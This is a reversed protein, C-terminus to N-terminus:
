VASECWSVWESLYSAFGEVKELPNRQLLPDNLAGFYFIERGALGQPYPYTKSSETKGLNCWCSDESSCTIPAKLSAAMAVHRDIGFRCKAVLKQFITPARQDCHAPQWQAENSVVGGPTPAAVGCDPSDPLEGWQMGLACLLGCVALAKLNSHRSIRHFIASNESTTNPWTTYM